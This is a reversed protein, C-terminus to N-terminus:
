SDKKEDKQKPRKMLDKETVWVDKVKMRTEITAESKYTKYKKTSWKKDTCKIKRENAWNNERERM